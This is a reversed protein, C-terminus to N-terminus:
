ENELFELTEFSMEFLLWLFVRIQVSFVSASKNNKHLVSKFSTLFPFDSTPVANRRADPMQNRADLELAIVL